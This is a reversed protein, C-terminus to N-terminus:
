GEEPFNRDLFERIYYRTFGQASILKKAEARNAAYGLERDWDGCEECYLIDDDFPYPSTYLWGLHSEYIYLGDAM